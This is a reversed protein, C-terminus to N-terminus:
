NRESAHKNHGAATEERKNKNENEYGKDTHEKKRTLIFFSGSRPSDKYIAQEAAM